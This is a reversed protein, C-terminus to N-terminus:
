YVVRDKARKHGFVCERPVHSLTAAALRAAGRTARNRGIVPRSRNRTQNWASKCSRSRSWSSVSACTSWRMRHTPGPWAGSTRAGQICRGQRRGDSCSRGWAVTLCRGDGAHSRRLGPLAQCGPCARSASVGGQWAGQRKVTSVGSSGCRAQEAPRHPLHHRAHRVRDAQQVVAVRLVRLGALSLPVDAARTRERGGQCGRAGRM